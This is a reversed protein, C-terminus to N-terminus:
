FFNNIKFNFKINILTAFLIFIIEIKVSANSFSLYKIPVIFFDVVTLKSIM